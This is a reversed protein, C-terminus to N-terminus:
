VVSVPLVPKVVDVSIVMVSVSSTEVVAESGVVPDVVAASSLVVAASVTVVDVSPVDAKVVAVGVTTRDVTLSTLVNVEITVLSNVVCGVEAATEADTEVDAVVTIVVSPCVVPVPVATELSSVCCLVVNKEVDKDDELVVPIVSCLLSVDDVCVTPDDADVTASVETSSILVERMGGNEEDDAALVTVSPWVDAVTPDAVVDDAKGEVSSVCGNDVVDTEDDLGGNVALLTPDVVGVIVNVEESSVSTLEEGMETDMEDDPVGTIVGNEGVTLETKNEVVSAMCVVRSSAVPVTGLTSSVTVSIKTVVVTVGSRVVASSAEPIGARGKRSM